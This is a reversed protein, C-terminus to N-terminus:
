EPLGKGAAVLMARYVLPLDLTESLAIAEPVRGLTAHVLDRGHRRLAVCVENQATHVSRADVQLHFNIKINGSAGLPLMVECGVAALGRTGDRRLELDGVILEDAHTALLVGFGNVAAGGIVEAVDLSEISCKPLEVRYSTIQPEDSAEVTFTCRPVGGTAAGLFIKPEISLALAM